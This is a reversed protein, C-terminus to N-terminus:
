NILAILTELFQKVEQTDRLLYSAATPRPTEAVLIGIGIDKLAGFADEDTTDDGLYFPVVDSGKLDLADLLWLVAKGKNWEITPRLEFVKKGTSKRLTPYAKLMEDVIGEISPVEDEAVLRYHVAISFRKNEVLAGEIAKVREVLQGYVTEITPLLHKGEEHQIKTRDPGAIDFGHSGAYILRDVQILEYVDTRGRGSVIAATCSSALRHLVDRMESSIVALDPRDVIPTLTGDYDLFVVVRRGSLRQKIQPLQDLASPIIRSHDHFWADIKKVTIEVLDKVVLDAGTEKLTSYHNRRDVGIVMGFEGTKGAEVGAISDEVVVSRKIDTSLIEASKTFIDPNPKGKLGLSASVVGDVRADFLDEIGAIKLVAQCNKSSSVIAVKVEQSKIERILEVTSLFVEVGDRQLIENFLKNKKNGLGCITEQDSRDSPKGYPIVIGRSELFSRVGEYRPKGDIYTLYDSEKDFPSFPERARSERLRLFTDFLEKWASAHVKATDTVVGDLDFIVADFNHQSL